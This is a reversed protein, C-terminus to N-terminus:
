EFSGGSTEAASGQYAGSGQVMRNLLSNWRVLLSAFRPSRRVGWRLASNFLDTRLRAHLRRGRRIICEVRGLYEEESVPYDEFAAGDGRTILVRRGARCEERVVRHGQLAGSRAAVIVDGMRAREFATRRIEALDGPFIAPLMSTGRALPCLMSGSELLEIALQCRIDSDMM